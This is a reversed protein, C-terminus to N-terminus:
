KFMKLPTINEKKAKARVYGIHSGAKEKLSMAILNAAMNIDGGCYGVAKYIDSESIKNNSYACDLTTKITSIHTKMQKKIETIPLNVSQREAFSKIFLDMSLEKQVISKAQITFTVSTTEKSNGRKKAVPTINLETKETIEKCAKIIINRWLDKRAYNSHVNLLKYLNDVSLSTTAFTSFTALYLYLRIAYASKFSMLVDRDFQTFGETCGSRVDGVLLFSKLEDNTTLTITGEELNTQIRKMMTFTDIKKEDEFRFDIKSIVELEKHLESLGYKKKIGLEKLLESKTYTHGELLGNTDFSNVRAIELFFIKWHIAKVDATVYKNSNENLKMEEIESKTLSREMAFFSKCFKNTLTVIQGM